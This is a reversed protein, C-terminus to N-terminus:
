NRQSRRQHGDNRNILFISLSKSEFVIFGIKKMRHMNREIFDNFLNKDDPPELDENNNMKSALLRQKTIDYLLEHRNPKEEVRVRHTIDVNRQQKRWEKESLKTIRIVTWELYTITNQNIKKM